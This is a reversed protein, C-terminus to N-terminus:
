KLPFNLSFTQNAQPLCKAMYALTHMRISVNVNFNGTGLLTPSDM